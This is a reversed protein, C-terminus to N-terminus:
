VRWTLYTDGRGVPSGNPTGQAGSVLDRVYNTGSLTTGDFTQLGAAGLLNPAFVLGRWTPIALRSNYADAIESASLIRNYYCLSFEKGDLNAGSTTSGLYVDSSTGSKYTGAPTTSETVAVSAGNLYLVPDNTTLSGDYTIAIHNMAGATLTASTTLWIGNTTTFHAVFGFKGTTIQTPVINLENSGTGSIMFLDYAAGFDDPNLWILITKQILGVISSGPTAWQINKTGSADMEIAM